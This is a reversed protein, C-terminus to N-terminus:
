AYADFAGNALVTKGAQVALLAQMLDAQANIEARKASPDPMQPNWTAVLRVAQVGVSSIAGAAMPQCGRVSRSQQPTSRSPRGPGSPHPLKRMTQTNGLPQQPM